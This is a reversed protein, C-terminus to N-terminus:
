GHISDEASIHLGKQRRKVMRGADRGRSQGGLKERQRKKMSGRRSIEGGVSSAIDGSGLSWM